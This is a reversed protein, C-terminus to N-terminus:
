PLQDCRLLNMDLHTNICRHDSGHRSDTTCVTVASHLDSSVFVLDLTSWTHHADSYFTPTGPELVLRLDHDALLQIFPPTHAASAQTRHPTHTGSWLPHHQNFDGLLIISDLSSYSSLHTNLVLITSLSSPPTYASILTYSSSPLSFCIATIDPSNINLQQYQTSLINHNLYIISRISPSDPTDHTNTHTPLFLHWHPSRFSALTSISAPVEQLCLTDWQVPDTTNLLSKLVEPQKRCNLSKIRLMPPYPNM